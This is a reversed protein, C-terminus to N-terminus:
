QPMIIVERSSKEAAESKNHALDAKAEAVLDQFSEGAEAIASQAKGFADFAWILGTKAASKASESLSHGTWSDVAAVAPPLALAGVGVALATIPELGLLLAQLEM